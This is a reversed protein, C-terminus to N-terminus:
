NTRKLRQERKNQDVQKKELRIETNREKAIKMIARLEKQVAAYSRVSRNKEWWESAKFYRLYAKVLDEHTENM